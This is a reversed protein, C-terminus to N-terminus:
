IVRSGNSVKHTPHLLVTGDENSVCALVLADSKVGAINKTPFNVVAIIQRGILEDPTYHQTIQASSTKIGIPGFDISLVYAPKKAKINLTAELITGVCMKVKMFDEFSIQPDEELM